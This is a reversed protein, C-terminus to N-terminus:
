EQARKILMDKILGLKEKGDLILSKMVRKSGKVDKGTEAVVLEDDLAPKSQHKEIIGNIDHQDWDWSDARM